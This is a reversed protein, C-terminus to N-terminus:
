LQKLFQILQERKETDLEKLKDSVDMTERQRVMAHLFPNNQVQEQDSPVYEFLDNLSCKFAVCLRYLLSPSFKTQKGNSLQTAHHRSIGNKRLHGYLNTIGLEKALTTIRLKFMIWHKQYPM